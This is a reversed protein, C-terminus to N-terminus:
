SLVSAMWANSFASSCACAPVGGFSAILSNEYSYQTGTESAVEELVDLYNEGCYLVASESGIAMAVAEAIMRADERTAPRISIVSM